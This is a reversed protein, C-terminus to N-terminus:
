GGVAEVECPYTPVADRCHQMPYPHDGKILRTRRITFAFTPARNM